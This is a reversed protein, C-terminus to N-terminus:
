EYDFIASQLVEHDGRVEASGFDEFTYSPDTYPNGEADVITYREVSQWVSFIVTKEDIGSVTHTVEVTTEETITRTSGFAESTSSSLKVGIGAFELSDEASLTETFTEALELSTGTMRSYTVSKTAGPDVRVSKGSDFAVREWFRERKLFVPNTLPAASVAGVYYVRAKDYQNFGDEVENWDYGNHICPTFFKEPYGGTFYFSCTGSPVTPNSAQEVASGNEILIVRQSGYNTKPLSRLDVAGNEFVLESTHKTGNWYDGPPDGQVQGTFSKYQTQIDIDWAFTGEIWTPAFDIDKGEIPAVVSLSESQDPVDFDNANSPKPVAPYGEPLDSGPTANPVAIQNKKPPSTPPAEPDDINTGNEPTHSSAGDAGGSCAACLAVLSVSCV